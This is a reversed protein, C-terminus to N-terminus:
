RFLTPWLVFANGLFRSFATCMLKGAQASPPLHETTIVRTDNYTYV